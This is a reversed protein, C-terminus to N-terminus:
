LRSEKKPYIEIMVVGYTPVVTTFNKEFVGLDKREWLDHVHVAHSFGVQSFNISAPLPPYGSNLLRVAVRGGSLPKTWVQVPGVQSIRHGQIGAADQDVSTVERADDDRMPDGQYSSLRRVYPAHGGQVAYAQSHRSPTTQM